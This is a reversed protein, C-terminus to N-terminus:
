PPSLKVELFCAKASASDALGRFSACSGARWPPAADKNSAPCDYMHEDSPLDAMLGCQQHSPPSSWSPIRIGPTTAVCISYCSGGRSIDM